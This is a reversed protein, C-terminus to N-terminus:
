QIVKDKGMYEAAVQGMINEIQDNTNQVVVEERLRYALTAFAKGTRGSQDLFDVKRANQDGSGAQEKGQSEPDHGDHNQHHKIGKKPPDVM